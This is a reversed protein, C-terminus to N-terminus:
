IKNKVGLVEYAIERLIVGNGIYRTRQYSRIQMTKKIDKLLKCVGIERSTHCLIIQGKEKLKKETKFNGYTITDVM